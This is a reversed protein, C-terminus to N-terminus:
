DSHDRVLIESAAVRLFEPPALRADTGHRVLAKSWSTQGIPTETTSVPGQVATHFKGPNRSNKPAEVQPTPSTQRLHIVDASEGQMSTRRIVQRHSVRSRCRACRWDSASV